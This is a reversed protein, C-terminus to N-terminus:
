LREGRTFGEPLKRIRDLQDIMVSSPPAGGILEPSIPNKRPIICPIYADVIKMQDLTLIDKLNLIFARGEREAKEKMAHIRELIVKVEEETEPSAKGKEMLESNLKSLPERLQNELEEINRKMEKRIANEKKVIELLREVQDESLYLSNYLNLFVISNRLSHNPNEGELPIVYLPIFLISLFILFKKSM